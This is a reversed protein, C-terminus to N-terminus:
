LGSITPKVETLFKETLVPWEATMELRYETDEPSMKRITLSSVAAFPNNKELLELFQRIENFSGRADVFIGFPRLHFGARTGGMWNEAAITRTKLQAIDLKAQRADDYIELNLHMFIDEALYAGAKLVRVLKRDLLEEEKALVLSRDITERAPAIKRALQDIAAVADDYSRKLPLLGGNLLATLLALPCLLAAAIRQRYITQADKKM